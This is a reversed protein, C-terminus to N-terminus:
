TFSFFLRSPTPPSHFNCSVIITSIKKETQRTDCVPPFSFSRLFIIFIAHFKMIGEDKIEGAEQKEKQVKSEGMEGVATGGKIVVNCVLTVHFISVRKSHKEETRRRLSSKVETM